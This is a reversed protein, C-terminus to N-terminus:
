KTQAAFRRHALALGTTVVAIYILGTTCSQLMPSHARIVLYTGSGLTSAILGYSVNFGAKSPSFFLYTTEAVSSLAILVHILVLM